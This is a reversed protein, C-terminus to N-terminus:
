IAVLSGNKITIAKFVFGFSGNGIKEILKYKNAIVTGMEMSEEM